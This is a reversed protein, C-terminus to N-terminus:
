QHKLSWDSLSAILLQHGIRCSQLKVTSLVPSRPDPPRASVSHVPAGNAEPETYSFHDLPPLSFLVNTCPFDSTVCRSSILGWPRLDLFEHPNLTYSPSIWPLNNLCLFLLFSSPTEVGFWASIMGLFDLLFSLPLATSPASHSCSKTICFEYSHFSCIHYHGLNSSSPVLNFFAQFFLFLIYSTISCYCSTPFFTV